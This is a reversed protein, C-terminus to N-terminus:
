EARSTRVVVGAREEQLMFPASSDKDGWGRAHAEILAQETLAGIAM